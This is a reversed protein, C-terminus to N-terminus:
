KGSLALISYFTAVIKVIFHGELQKLLEFKTSAVELLLGAVYVKGNSLLLASGRGNALMEIEQDRMDIVETPTPVEMHDIGCRGDPNYGFTFLRGRSLYHTHFAGCFIDDVDNAVLTRSSFICHGEYMVGLQNLACLEGASYLRGDNFLIMSFETPSAGGYAIKKIQSIDNPLNFSSNIM